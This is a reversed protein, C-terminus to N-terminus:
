SFSRRTRLIRNLTHRQDDHTAYYNYVIGTDDTTATCLAHLTNHWRTQQRNGKKSTLLYVPQFTNRTSMEFTRCAKLLAVWEDIIANNDEELLSIEISAYVNGKLKDILVPSYESPTLRVSPQRKWIFLHEQIGVGKYSTQHTKGIIYRHHDSSSSSVAFTTRDYATKSVHVVQGVFSSTELRNCLNMSAGYYRGHEEIVTGYHIGVRIDVGLDIIKFATNIMSDVCTSMLVVGDGIEEVKTVGIPLVGEMRTMFYAVYDRVEEPPKGKCWTSFNVMDIMCVCIEM